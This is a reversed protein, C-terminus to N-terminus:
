PKPRPRRKWRPPAEGAQEAPETQKTVADRLVDLAVDLLQGDTLDDPMVAGAPAAVPRLDELRGVVRYGGETLAAITASAVEDVQRQWPQPVSLSGHTRQAALTEKAFSRKIQRRYAPWPYDDPLRANFRRLLETEATGLSENSRLNDREYDVAPLEVAESFRRWLESRDAGSPPVTVLIISEPRVVAAWREAVAAVDQPIWFPEDLGSSQARGLPAAAMVAELFESFTQHDRNKLREQWVAPLQRGLDRVTLVVRVEAPAFDGVAVQIKDPPTRAFMEHSIVAAGSWANTEEVLRPWAGAVDDASHHFTTDRLDLSAHFHAAHTDGPYLVGHKRLRKRNLWLNRQLYTTGTKAVGVHLFM